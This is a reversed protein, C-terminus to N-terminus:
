QPENVKPENLKKMQEDLARQQGQFKEKWLATNEKLIDAYAATRDMLATQTKLLEQQLELEKRSPVEDAWLLPSPLLLGMLLIAVGVRMM